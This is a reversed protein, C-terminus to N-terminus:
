SNPNKYSALGGKQGSNAVILRPKSFFPTSKILSYWLFSM